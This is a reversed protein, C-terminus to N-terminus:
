ERKQGFATEWGLVRAMNEYFLFLIITHPALRSYNSTWARFFGRVGDEKLIGAACEWMGGGGAMLRTKMVDFPSSATTVAVGAVMSAAMHTGVSGPDLGFRGVLWAKITDYTAVQSSTIAAGRAMHPVLGSFVGALGEKMVLSSLAAGVHPYRGPAAQMRVKAIEFPNGVLAAVSGSMIGAGIKLAFSNPNADAGILTKAPGYLAIRTASYTYARVIGAPLGNWFGTLGEKAVLARVTSVFGSSSSSSLQLRCKIVDVPNTFVTAFACATGSLLAREWVSTARLEREKPACAVVKRAWDMIWTSAQLQLVFQVPAFM